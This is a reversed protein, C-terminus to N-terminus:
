FFNGTGKKRPRGRPRLTHELGYIQSMKKQWESNGFPTQRNVSQNLKDLERDTLPTDVYNAWDSPLDVPSYVVIRNIKNGIRERHSSYPWDNASSVLGARVPNGEVYRVVTLLHEDEKILFSKYRGQWVHGSTGYHKHYRRVHSTLLWQMLRSLSNARCPSLVFHFHNPMLCYAFINVSFLAMGEKLLKIFIAYDQDKHFIRQKANGRNLVHYILGDSIGRSIRPM